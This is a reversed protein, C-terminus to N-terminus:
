HCAWGEGAAVVTGGSDRCADLADSSAAAHWVGAALLVAALLVLVAVGIREPVRSGNHRPGSPPRPSGPASPAPTGRRDPPPEPKPEQPPPDNKLHASM